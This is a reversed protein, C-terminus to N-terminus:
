NNTNGRPGFVDEDFNRDLVFGFGYSARFGARIVALPFAWFNTGVNVVDDSKLFIDPMTGEEIARLNLRITAQRDTGVMRTLDVREPIALNSLGGAAVMVRQLSLRGNAPLNYVGPRNVEGQVYVIGEPPSPIRIVDGPRIIINFQASGALLPALPVEVVRQTVLKEAGPVSPAAKIIDAPVPKDPTVEPIILPTGAPTYQPQAPRTPQTSPTEGTRRVKTAQIWKGDRFVWFKETTEQM